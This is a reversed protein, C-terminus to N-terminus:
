TEGQPNEDAGRVLRKAYSCDEFAVIVPREVCEFVLILSKERSLIRIEREKDAHEEISIRMHEIHIVGNRTIELQSFPKM